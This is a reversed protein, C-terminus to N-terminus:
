VERDGTQRSLTIWEELALTEARRRPDIGAAELMEGANPYLPKLNNLITKRKQIFGTSVLRTFSEEDVGSAPKPRLRVVSSWIKPQPRFATPPVDTIKKTEFAAEVLVTLFGRETSGPEATIREVVERQFM